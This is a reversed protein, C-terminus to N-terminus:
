CAVRAAAAARARRASGKTTISGTYRTKVGDGAPSDVFTLVGEAGAFAGTGGTIPHVCAGWLLASGASKSWYTFDFKLTGSPDGHCSEDGRRDICGKFEETGTATFLPAEATVDFSTTTWRGVLDGTMKYVGADEDVVKQRGDVQYTKASAPGAVALAALTAAALPALRTFRTM